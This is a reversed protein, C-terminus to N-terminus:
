VSPPNEIITDPDKMKLSSLFAKLLKTTLLTRTRRSFRWSALPPFLDTLLDRIYLLLNVWLSKGLKLPWIPLQLRRRLSLWQPLADTLFVLIWITKQFFSMCCAILTATFLTFQMKLVNSISPPLFKFLQPSFVREFHPIPHLNHHKSTSNKYILLIFSLIVRLAPVLPAGM